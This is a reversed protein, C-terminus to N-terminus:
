SMVSKATYNRDLQIQKFEDNGTQFNASEM